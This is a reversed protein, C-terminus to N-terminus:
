LTRLNKGVSLQNEKYVIYFDINRNSKTQNQM